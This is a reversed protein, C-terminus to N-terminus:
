LMLLQLMHLEKERHQSQQWLRARGGKAGDLPVLFSSFRQQLHDLQAASRGFLHICCLHLVKHQRVLVLDESMRLM